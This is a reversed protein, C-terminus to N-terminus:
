AKKPLGYKAAGAIALLGGIAVFGSWGLSTGRDMETMIRMLFMTTGFAALGVVVHFVKLPIRDARGQIALVGAAVAFGAAGLGALLGIWAVLPIDSPVRELDGWSATECRGGGCVEIGTLGIGGEGRDPTFWSKTFIGVLVLAAAVWLMIATNRARIPDTATAAAVPLSPSPTNYM